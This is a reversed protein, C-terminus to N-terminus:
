TNPQHPFQDGFAPKLETLWTASPDFTAFFPEGILNPERAHTFRLVFVKQTGIDAIGDVSVTGPGVPMAPGRVTRGLGAVSAYAHTFIEHARALPVRIHDGTGILREITMTFPVMGMRIQTRWMSAWIDAADNVSGILAGRTRIVAGTGRVRGVAEAVPAPRLERPHSFSAMLTFAKGSAVIQEFLRLTDDADPDTLFRCPWCALASSDIQISELQELALLPEVFRRLAPAGMALPDSGALQVGTVEPHAILYDALRHVDDAAVARGPGGALPAGTLCTTGFVQGAPESAPFMVVTDHYIRHVGPLAEQGYRSVDDAALRTRVRQAADEIRVAPAQRRLLDAIRTVDPAPLLDEDPFVLRYIPDDPADAWDILEEVVYGTTSFGLVEAIARIRLRQEAALGARATLEGLDATIVARFSREGSRPAASEPAPDPM